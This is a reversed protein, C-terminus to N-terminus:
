TCSELSTLNRASFGKQLTWTAATTHSPANTFKQHFSNMNSQPLHTVSPVRHNGRGRLCSPAQGTRAPPFPFAATLVFLHASSLTMPPNGQHHRRRYASCLRLGSHHRNTTSQRQSLHHLHCGHYPSTTARSRLTATSPLSATTSRLADARAHMCALKCDYGGATSEKRYTHGLAYGGNKIARM